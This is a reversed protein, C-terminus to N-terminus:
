IRSATEKKQNPDFSNKFRCERKKTDNNHASLITNLLKTKCFDSCSTSHIDNLRTKSINVMIMIGTYDPSHGKRSNNTNDLHELM